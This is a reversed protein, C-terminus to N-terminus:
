KKKRLVLIAISLASLTSIIIEASTSSCSCGKNTNDPTPTPQPEPNPTPNPDVPEEKISDVTIEEKLEEAFISANPNPYYLLQLIITYTDKTKDLNDLTITGRKKNLTIKQDGCIIYAWNVADDEDEYQYEVKIYDSTQEKVQFKVYITSAKVDQYEIEAYAPDLAAFWGSFASFRRRQASPM